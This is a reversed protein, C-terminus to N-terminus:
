ALRKPVQRNRKPRSHINLNPNIEPIRRVRRQKPKTVLELNNNSDKSTALPVIETHVDEKGEADAELIRKEVEEKFALKGKKLKPKENIAQDNLYRIDRLPPDDEPDDEELDENIGEDETAALPNTLGLKNNVPLFEKLVQPDEGVTKHMPKLRTDTYFEKNTVPLDKPWEDINYITEDEVDDMESDIGSDEDAEPNPDLNFTESILNGTMPLLKEKRKTIQKKKSRTKKRSISPKRLYNTYQMPNQDMDQLDWATFFNGYGRRIEKPMKELAHPAALKVLHTIKKEKKFKKGFVPVVKCMQHSIEVVKYLTDGYCPRGRGEHHIRKTDKQLVIDGVQIHHTIPTGKNKKALIEDMDKEYQDIAEEITKREMERAEPDSIQNLAAELGNALHRPQMGFYIDNRSPAVKYHPLYKRLTPVPRTNLLFNAEYLVNWLSSTRNFNALKWATERLSRIFREVRSNSTSSNPM